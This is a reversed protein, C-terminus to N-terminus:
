YIIIFAARLVAAPAMQTPISKKKLQHVSIRRCYYHLETKQPEFVVEHHQASTASPHENVIIFDTSAPWQQCWGSLPLHQVRVV